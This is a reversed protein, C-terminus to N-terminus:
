TAKEDAVEKPAAEQAGVDDVVVLSRVEQAVVQYLKTAPIVRYFQGPEGFPGPEGEKKVWAEGERKTAVHKVFKLTDKDAVWWVDSGRKTRVMAVSRESLLGKFARWICFEARPVREGTEARKQESLMPFVRATPTKPLWLGLLRAVATPEQNKGAEDNVGNLNARQGAV